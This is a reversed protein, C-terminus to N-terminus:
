SGVHGHTHVTVSCLRRLLLLHSQDSVIPDPAVSIGAAGEVGVSEEGVVYAKTSSAAGATTAGTAAPGMAPGVAAPIAFVGVVAGIVVGIMGVAFVLTGLKWGLRSGSRVSLKRGSPSRSGLTPFAPRTPVSADSKPSEEETGNMDVSIGRWPSPTVNTNTERSDAPTTSAM